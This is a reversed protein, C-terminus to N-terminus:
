FGRQTIGYQVSEPLAERAGPVEFTQAVTAAKLVSELVSAPALTHVCLCTGAHIFQGAHVCIFIYVCLCTPLDTPTCPHFAM